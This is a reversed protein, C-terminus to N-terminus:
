YYKAIILVIGIIGITLVLLFIVCFAMLIYSAIEKSYQGVIFILVFYAIVSLFLGADEKNHRKCRDGYTENERIDGFM